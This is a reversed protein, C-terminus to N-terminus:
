FVSIDEFHGLIPLALYDEGNQSLGRGEGVFVALASEQYRVKGVLRNKRPFFATQLDIVEDALVVVM